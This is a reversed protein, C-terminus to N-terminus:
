MNPAARSRSAADADRRLSRVLGYIGSLVLVAGVLIPVVTFMAVFPHVWTQPLLPYFYVVIGIGGLLSMSSLTFVAIRNTQKQTSEDTLRAERRRTWYCFGFIYALLGLVGVPERYSVDVVGNVLLPVAVLGAIFFALYGFYRLAGRPM